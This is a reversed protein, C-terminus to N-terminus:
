DLLRMGSGPSRMGVAPRAPRIRPGIGRDRLVLGSQGTPKMCPNSPRMHRMVSVRHRSNGSNTRRPLRGDELREGHRADSQARSVTAHLGNSTLRRACHRCCDPRQQGLVPRSPLNESSAVLRKIGRWRRLGLVGGSPIAEQRVVTHMAKAGESFALKDANSVVEKMRTHPRLRAAIKLVQEGRGFCAAFAHRAREDFGHCGLSSSTARSAVIPVRLFVVGDCSDEIVLYALVNTEDAVVVRKSLCTGRLASIALRSRRGFAAVRTSRRLGATGSRSVAGRALGSSSDGM